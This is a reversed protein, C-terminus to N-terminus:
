VITAMYWKGKCIAAEYANLKTIGEFFFICKNIKNLMKISNRNSTKKTHVYIFFQAQKNFGHRVTYGLKKNFWSYGCKPNEGKKKSEFTKHAGL